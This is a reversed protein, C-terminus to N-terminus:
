DVLDKVETLEKYIWDYSQDLRGLCAGLKEAEGQEHFRQANGIGCHLNCLASGLKHSLLRMVLAAAERQEPNFAKITDMVENTTM